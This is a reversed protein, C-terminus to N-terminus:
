NKSRRGQRKPCLVTAWHKSETHGIPYGMLAEVWEPNLVARPNGISNPNIEDQHSAIACPTLCPSRRNYEAPSGNDKYDRAAPTPWMRVATELGDGSNPSAGKRNYNGCLSQTPWHHVAGSLAYNGRSDRQNPGAHGGDSARPTPWCGGVIEKTPLELKPLPYAVGNRMMGQRPLKGSYPTSGKLVYQPSTKSSSTDLSLNGFLDCSKSFCDAEPTQNSETKNEQWALIKAHFVVSYSTLKLTSYPETSRELTMGSPPLIWTM